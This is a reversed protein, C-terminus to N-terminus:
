PAVVEALRETLEGLRVPDAGPTAILSEVEDALVSGTPRGYSGLSGALAHAARSAAERSEDSESGDARVDAYRQIDAVREQALPQFRQWMQEVLGRADLTVVAM